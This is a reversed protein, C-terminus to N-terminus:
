SVSARKQQTSDQRGEVKTRHITDEHGKNNKKSQQRKKTPGLWVVQSLGINILIEEKDEM